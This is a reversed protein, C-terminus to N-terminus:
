QFLICNHKENLHKNTIYLLFISFLIFFHILETWVVVNHKDMLHKNLWRTTKYQKECYECQQGDSPAAEASIRISDNRILIGIRVAVFFRELCFKIAWKYASEIFWNKRWYKVLNNM